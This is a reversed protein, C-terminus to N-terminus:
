RLPSSHRHKAAFLRANEGFNRGRRHRANSSCDVRPKHADRSTQLRQLFLLLKCNLALCFAYRTPLRYTRIRLKEGKSDKEANLTVFIVEDDDSVVMQILDCRATFKLPTWTATSPTYLRFAYTNTSKKPKCVLLREGIWKFKSVM